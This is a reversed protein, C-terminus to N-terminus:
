PKNMFDIADRIFKFKHYSYPQLRITDVDLGVSQCWAMKEALEIFDEPAMGDDCCIVPLNFIKM